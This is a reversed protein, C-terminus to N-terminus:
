VRGLGMVVHRLSLVGDTTVRLRAGIADVAQQAASQLMDVDLGNEGAPESPFSPSLHEVDFTPSAEEWSGDPALLLHVYVSRKRGNELELHFLARISLSRTGESLGSLAAVDGPLQPQQFYRILADVLPHGLGLLQVNRRRMALDRRFTAERYSRAVGPYSLLAEPTEIQM